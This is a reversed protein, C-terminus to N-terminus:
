ALPGIYDLKGVPVGQHRLIDYATTIHFFFNPIGFQLLYHQGSFRVQHGPMKMEVVREGSGKFADPDVGAIFDRTKACRGLLDDFSAEDDAMAPAALGTLRAVSAKATDSARQVQNALTFMDPALRAQVLTAPDIGAAEAHAAGKRLVHALQDLGRLFLPVSAEYMSLAM